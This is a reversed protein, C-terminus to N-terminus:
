SEGYDTLLEKGAEIDQEATAALVRCQGVRAERIIVNVEGCTHNLFRLWHGYKSADIWGIHDASGQEMSVGGELDSFIPYRYQSNRKKNWTPISILEGLYDGLIEGSEIMRAAILATGLAGAHKLAVATDMAERRRRRWDDVNCNCHGADDIGMAVQSCNLCPGDSRRAWMVWYQNDPGKQASTPESKVGWRSWPWGSPFTVQKDVDANGVWLKKNFKHTSIAQPTLPRRATSPNRVAGKVRTSGDATWKFFTKNATVCGGPPAIPTPSTTKKKQSKAQIPPGNGKLGKRSEKKRASTNKPQNKGGIEDQNHKVNQKSTVAKQSRTRPLDDIQDPNHQRNPDSDTGQESASIHNRYQSRTTVNTRQGRSIQEDTAAGQHAMVETSWFIGM